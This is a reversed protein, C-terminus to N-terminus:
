MPLLLGAPYPIIKFVEIAKQNFEISADYNGQDSYVISTYQLARGKGIQYNIKDATEAALAYLAIASDPNEIEMVYALDLMQQVALSDATQGTARGWFVLFQIYAFWKYNHTFAVMFNRAFCLM